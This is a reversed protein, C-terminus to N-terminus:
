KEPPPYPSLGLALREADIAEMLKPLDRHPTESLSHPGVSRLNRRRDEREVLRPLEVTTGDREFIEGLFGTPSRQSYPFVGYGPVFILFEPRRARTPAGEEIDKVELLFRGESDTTTERVAYHETTIHFPYIRDRLWLAVVVAGVLPAKTEADLVQGRYPGHPRDLYRDWGEAGQAGASAACVLLLWFCVPLTRLWGNM